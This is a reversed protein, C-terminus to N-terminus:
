KFNESFYDVIEDIEYDEYSYLDPDELYDRFGDLSLDVINGTSLEPNDIFNTIVDLMEDEDINM